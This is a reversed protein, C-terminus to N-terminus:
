HCLIAGFIVCMMIVITFQIIVLVNSINDVQKILKDFQEDSM